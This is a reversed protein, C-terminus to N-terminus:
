RMFDVLTQQIIKSGVSLSAQHISEATTLETIAKAYDTDENESMQKTVNVEQVSLRNQMLELRNQKAGVQSRMTLAESSIKDLGKGTGFTEGLAKTLQNGTAGTKLANSLESMYTDIDAFLQSGNTNVQLGINDFVEVTFEGNKGNATLAPNQGTQGTIYIPQDTHTGSFIYSDGVQTNAIDRVQEKLQDIEAAIAMRDDATLSDTSAQVVLEKVRNLTDGVQGLSEDTTDLWSTAVNTNRQYQVNSDLQHRYSMGKIAVVPDDSPRNIKSGSEIQQQLNSMKSYSTILNRLMNNSLMSQTVRM